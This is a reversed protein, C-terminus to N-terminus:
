LPWHVFVAPWAILIGVIMSAGPLWAIVAMVFLTLGFSRQGLQVMLRGISVDNDSARDLMMSLQVSTATYEQAEM